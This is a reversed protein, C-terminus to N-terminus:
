ELNAAQEKMKDIADKMAVALETMEVDASKSGLTNAERLAEQLLFELRRGVGAAAGRLLQRAHEIHVDLRELEETVDARDAFLAVERIVDDDAMVKAREALFERVRALLKARYDAVREPARAAARERLRALEDLASALARVLAAGERERDVLLEDLAREFLAAAQAPAVRAARM